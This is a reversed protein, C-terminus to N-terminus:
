VITPVVGATLSSEHVERGVRALQNGERRAATALRYAARCPCGVYAGESERWDRDGITHDIDACV